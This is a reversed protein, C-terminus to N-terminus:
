AKASQSVVVPAARAPTRDTRHRHSEHWPILKAELYETLYFLITGIAALLLIAAFVRDTRFAGQASLIVFGLGSQAAVFEGVIAGVLSLSVAVKMGALISPLANPLRLKLLTKLESGRLSRGLDVMDPTLSRLGLVADVVIAFISILVGMAIKSANGTGLWIVFLPALAVKPINNLAILAAYLTKELFKSYVIAIALGVGFVVSIVFAALTNGLTHMSQVFYFHPNAAIERLVVEVSPVLIERVSFVTVVTQWLVLLAALTWLESPIRSLCSRVFTM